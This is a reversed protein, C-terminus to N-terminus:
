RAPLVQGRIFGLTGRVVVAQETETLLAAILSWTDLFHHQYPHDQVGVLDIAAQDAARVLERIQDLRETAPVVSIGFRLSTDSDAAPM